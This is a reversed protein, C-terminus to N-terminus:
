FKKQYIEGAIAYFLDRRKAYEDYLAKQEKTFTKVLKKEIVYMRAQAVYFGDIVEARTKNIVKDIVERKKM